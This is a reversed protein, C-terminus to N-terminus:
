KWQPRRSRAGEGVLYGSPPIRLLSVAWWWCWRRPLQLPLWKLAERWDSEVVLENLSDAILVAPQNTEESARQLATLLQERIEPPSGPSACSAPPDRLSALLRGAFRGPDEEFRANDLVVTANPRRQRLLGYLSYLFSTKGIGTEGVIALVGGASAIDDIEALVEELEQDRGVFKELRIVMDRAVEDPLALRLGGSGAALSEALGSLRGIILDAIDAPTRGQTSIYGDISFIGSVDGADMRILM